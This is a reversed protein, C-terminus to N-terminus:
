NFTSSRVRLTLLLALHAIPCHFCCSCKLLELGRLSLANGFTELSSDNAREAFERQQLRSSFTAELDQLHNIKTKAKDILTQKPLSTPDYEASPLSIPRDRDAHLAYLALLKGKINPAIAKATEVMDQVIADIMQEEASKRGFGFM